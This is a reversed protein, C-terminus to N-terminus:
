DSDEEEEESGSEEEYEESEEDESEELVMPPNAKSPKNVGKSSAAAKAAVGVKTKSSGSVPLKSLKSSAQEEPKPRSTVTLRSMSQESSRWDSVEHVKLQMSVASNSGCWIGEVGILPRAYGWVGILDSYKITEEPDEYSYFQTIVRFPDGSEVKVDGEKKKNPFEFLKPYIKLNRGTYDVQKTRKDKPYLPLAFQNKISRSDTPICFDLQHEVIHDCATEYIAQITRLFQKEVQTPKENDHIMFSIAHGTLEGTDTNHNLTIGYSQVEQDLFLLLPGYTEDDYRYMINSRHGVPTSIGTRADVKKSEIADTFIINNPDFTSQDVIQRDKKLTKLLEETTLQIAKKISKKTPAPAKAAVKKTVTKKKTSM